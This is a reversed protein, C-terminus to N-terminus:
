ALYSMAKNAFGRKTSNHEVAWENRLRHDNDVNGWDGDQHRALLIEIDLGTETLANAAASSVKITGLEFKEM